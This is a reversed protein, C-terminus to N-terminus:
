FGVEHSTDYQNFYDLDKLGEEWNVFDVENKIDENNTFIRGDEDVGIWRHSPYDNSTKQPDSVLEFFVADQIQKRFFLVDTSFKAVWNNLLGISIEQDTTIDINNPMDSIDQFRDEKLIGALKKMRTKFNESLKM